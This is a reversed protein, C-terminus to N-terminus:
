LISTTPGSVSLGPETQRHGALLVLERRLLAELREAPVESLGVHGVLYPEFVGWGLVAALLLAVHAQAELDDTANPRYLEVLRALTPFNEPLVADLDGELIAWSLMRAFGGGRAVFLSDIASAFNPSDAVL